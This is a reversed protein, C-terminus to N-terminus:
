SGSTGAYLLGFFGPSEAWMQTFADLAFLDELTVIDQDKQNGILDGQMSWLHLKDFPMVFACNSPVSFETLFEIGNYSLKRIGLSLDENNAGTEGAQFRQQGIMSDEADALMSATLMITDVGAGRIENLFAITRNCAQQWQSKWSIPVTTAGPAALGPNPSFYGSLYNCIIPSWYCFTPSFSGDPWGVSSAGVWTNDRNGLVTSIGAYTATPSCAWWANGDLRAGTASGGGTTLENFTTVQNYVPKDASFYSPTASAGFMSLMGYLGAQTKSGDQWLRYRYAEIFEKTLKTLRKEVLSYLQNQGPANVLRVMKPISDGLRYESWPITAQDEQAVYPFDITTTSGNVETIDRRYYEVPWTCANVGSKNYEICKKAKLQGLFASRRMNPDIVRDRLFNQLSAIPVNNPLAIGAM